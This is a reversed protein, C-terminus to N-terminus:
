AGMKARSIWVSSDGIAAHCQHWGILQVGREAHEGSCATAVVLIGCKWAMAMERLGELRKPGRHREAPPAGEVGLELLQAAASRRGSRRRGGSLLRPGCRGTRCPRVSAITVASAVPSWSTNVRALAYRQAKGGGPGPDCASSSATKRSSRSCKVSGSIMSSAPSGCHRPKPAEDRREVQLIGALWCLLRRGPAYATLPARRIHTVTNLASRHRSSPACALRPFVSCSVVVCCGADRVLQCCRWEWRPHGADRM